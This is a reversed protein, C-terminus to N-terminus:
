LRSLAFGGQLKLSNQV